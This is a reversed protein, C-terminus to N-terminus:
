ENYHWGRVFPRDTRLNRSDSYEGPPLGIADRNIDFLMVLRYSNSYNHASHLRQNNFGFIEDWTVEEGDVELFLDGEPIILPIHIRIFKGQLNEPGVHRHLITMPAMCSYTMSICSDYYKQLLKRATPYKKATADDAVYDLIVKGHEDQQVDRLLLGKWGDINSEFQNTVPNKSVLFNSAEEVSVTQANHEIANSCQAWMADKLSDYGQMFDDILGQRFSMLDEAISLDSGKWIQQKKM